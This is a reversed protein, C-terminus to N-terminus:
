PCRRFLGRWRRLVERPRLAMDAPRRSIPANSTKGSPLRTRSPWRKCTTRVLRWAEPREPPARGVVARSRPHKLKAHRDLLRPLACRQLIDPAIVTAGHSQRSPAAALRALLRTTFRMSIESMTLPLNVRRCTSGRSCSASTSRPRKMSVPVCIPQSCPTHPAQVISISPTGARDQMACVPLQAPASMRVMSPKPSSSTIVARRSAKM